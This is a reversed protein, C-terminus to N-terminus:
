VFHLGILAVFSPWVHRCHLCHLSCVRASVWLLLSKMCTLCCAQAPAASCRPRTWLKSLRATSAPGATWPRTQHCMCAAQLVVLMKHYACTYCMLRIDKNCRAAALECDNSYLRGTRVDWELSHKAALSQWGADFEEAERILDDVEPDAAVHCPLFFLTM